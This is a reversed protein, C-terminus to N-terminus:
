RPHLAASVAARVNVVMAFLTIWMMREDAVLTPLGGQTYNYGAHRARPHPRGPRPV